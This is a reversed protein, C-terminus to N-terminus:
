QLCMRCFGPSQSGPAKNWPNPSLCSAACNTQLCSVTRIPRVESQSGESLINELRNCIFADSPCLGATQSVHVRTHSSGSSNLVCFKHAAKPSQSYDIVVLQSRSELYLIVIFPEERYTCAQIHGLLYTSIHLYGQTSPQWLVFDTMM